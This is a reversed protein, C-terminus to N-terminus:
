YSGNQKGTTRYHRDSKYINVELSEVEAVKIELDSMEIKMKNSGTKRDM